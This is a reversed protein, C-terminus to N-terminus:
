ISLCAFLCAGVVFGSFPCSTLGRPGLSVVGVHWSLWEMGVETNVRPVIQQLFMCGMSGGDVYMVATWKCKLELFQLLSGLSKNLTNTLLWMLLIGAQTLDAVCLVTRASPGQFYRLQETEVMTAWLSPNIGVLYSWDSGAFLDKMKGRVLTMDIKTM